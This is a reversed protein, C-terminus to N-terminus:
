IKDLEGTIQCAYADYEDLENNYAQYEKLVDNMQATVRQINEECKKKIQKRKANNMLLLFAGFGGALLTGSLMWLGAFITGIGFAGAVAFGIYSKWNKIELLEKIKIKDFFKRIKNAAERASDLSVCASFENITIPHVNTRERRYEEIYNDIAKQQLDKILTFMNLKIQGNVEHFEKKFIWNIIENVLNLSNKEAQQQSNFEAKAAEVDGEHKIITENYEIEAIVGEEVNNPEEILEDIFGKIFENKQEIPVNVIDKIYQLINKNNKAKMMTENMRNFDNCYRILMPYEAREIPKMRDYYWKIQGAFDAETYGESEINKQIVRKIFRNIEDRIKDNVNENITKSILSFLALFTRQDKGKLECNQYVDFWKLAAGGRQMRLNFLMYFVASHKKDLMYARQMAKEALEKDNNKWAMISILVCTLWYDPIQLHQTEISKTIVQDSVMNVDLNDMIGQVIKRVTRYYAFEYYKKNNYARIRKNAMEINKFRVFLREIYGQMELADIIRVHSSNMKGDCSSMANQIVMNYDELQRHANMVGNEIVMLDNKLRQNIEQAQRLESQFYTLHENLIPIFNSRM